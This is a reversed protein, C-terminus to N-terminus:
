NKLTIQSAGEFTRIKNSSLTVIFFDRVASNNWSPTKKQAKLGM